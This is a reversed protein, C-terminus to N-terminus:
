RFILLLALLQHAQEDVAVVAFPDRRLGGLRREADIKGLIESSRGSVQGRWLVDVFTMGPIVGGRQVARCVGGGGDSKRIRGDGRQLGMGQVALGEIGGRIGAKRM